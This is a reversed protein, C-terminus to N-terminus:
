VLFEIPRLERPRERARGDGRVQGALEQGAREKGPRHRERSDMGDSVNKKGKGERDRESARESERERVRESARESQRQEERRERARENAIVCVELLTSYPMM